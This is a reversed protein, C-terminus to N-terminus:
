ISFIFIINQRVFIIFKLVVYLIHFYKKNLVQPWESSFSFSYSFKTGYEKTCSMKEEFYWSLRKQIKDRAGEKRALFPSVIM